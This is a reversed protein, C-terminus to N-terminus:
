LRVFSAMLKVQEIESRIESVAKRMEARMADYLSIADLEQARPEKLM